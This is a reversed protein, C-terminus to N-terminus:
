LCGGDDGDDGGAVLRCAQGALRKELDAASRHDLVDVAARSRSRPAGVTIAVSSSRM